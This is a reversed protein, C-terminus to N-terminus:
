KFPDDIEAQAPPSSPFLGNFLRMAAGGIGKRVVFAQDYQSPPEPPAPEATFRLTLTRQPISIKVIPRERDINVEYTSIENDLADDRFLTAGTRKDLLLMSAIRKSASGGSNTDINRQFILVPQDLPQDFPVGMQSIAAPAPWAPKGSTRDIAYVKGTMLAAFPVADRENPNGTRPATQVIARPLPNIEPLAVFVFYQERSRLLYLQQLKAEAELQATLQVSDDLLSRIRLKGDPQLIAVENSGIMFGRSGPPATERWVERQHTLDNLRLELPATAESEEEGKSQSWSLVRAGNTAVRQELPAISRNEVLAGDLLRYARVEKENPIAAYVHEADGLLECGLPVDSRQWLTDGTLPDVCVLQRNRLFCVGASTLPSTSGVPRRQGDVVMVRTMGWPNQFAHASLYRLESRDQEDHLDQRWLITAESDHQFRLADLAIVENGTSILLLHGMMRAHYAVVNSAREGFPGGRGSRPKLLTPKLSVNILEQGYSDRLLLTEQASNYIAQLSASYRNNEQLWRCLHLQKRSEGSDQPISHKEQEVVVRGRPYVTNITAIGLRYNLRESLEANFREATKGPLVEGKPFDRLLREGATAAATWREAAVLIKVNWAAAQAAVSRQASDLLPHVLLEAELLNGSEMFSDILSLRAEDAAPHFAFREIFGRLLPIADPPLKKREALILQDIKMRQEANAQQYLHEAHAALWRSSRVRLNRDVDIIAVPEANEENAAPPKAVAQSFALLAQFSGVHDGLSERGLSVIRHFREIQTADELRPLLEAALAQHQQYDDALLALGAEVLLSSVAPDHEPRKLATQLQEWAAKYERRHLLLEGNRAMAWPNTPSKALTEAVREELQDYRYFSAVREQSLSVLNGGYPILNGLPKSTAFQDVIKGTAVELKVLTRETTPQLYFQQDLLGRGSPTAIAVEEWAKTGDALKLGTLHHTGILLVIGQQVGAVLLAEERKQSWLLKGSFLDFCHIENSEPPTVIVKGDSIAASSDLWGEGYPIAGRNIFSNRRNSDSTHDYSTAWALSRSVLDVGLVVGASTPCVIIGDAYSPSAGSIHRQSHRPHYWHESAVLVSRFLM